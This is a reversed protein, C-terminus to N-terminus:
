FTETTQIGSTHSEFAGIDCAQDDGGIRLIGRQDMNDQMSECVSVDGADIAPSDAQLGITQTPGGNDALPLLKPDVTPVTPGCTTGPYQVNHGGDFITGFCNTNKNSTFIITNQITAKSHLRSAIAGGGGTAANDALTSGIVTLTGASAIAGGIQGPPAQNAVFTSNVVNVEGSANDIGHSNRAFTSGIVTVKGGSYIGDGLNDEFTSQTATLTGFNVIGHKNQKFVTRTVKLTGRNYIGGGLGDVQAKTITLDSITLTANKNVILVQQKDNGSLTVQQGSGDLTIDTDIVKSRTIQLTGSCEFTIRDGNRAKALAADLQSETCDDISLQDAWAFHPLGIIFLLTLIIGARLITM